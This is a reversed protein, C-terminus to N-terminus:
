VKEYTKEFIDPKCPYIEGNVGRIIWDNFSVRMVGELTNIKLEDKGDSNPWDSPFLSGIQTVEKNWAEHLWNPWDFNNQRRYITMQYAEIVVPKKRYSHENAQEPRGAMKTGTKHNIIAIIVYEM